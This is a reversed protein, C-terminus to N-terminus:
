RWQDQPLHTLSILPSIITFYANNTTTGAIKNIVNVRTTGTTAYLGFYFDGPTTNDVIKRNVWVSFRYTKSTDITQYDAESAPMNFGGYLNGSQSPGAYTEWVVSQYGYPDTDIIQKSYTGNNSYMYWNTTSGSQGNVWDITVENKFKLISDTGILAKTDLTHVKM